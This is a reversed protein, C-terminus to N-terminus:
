EKVFKLDFVEEDTEIKVFYLGKPLNEVVIKNAHSTITKVIKGQYDMINIENIVTSGANIMLYDKAPNPFIVLDNRNSLERQGVTGSYDVNQCITEECGFASYSTLCVNYVGTTAYQHVPNQSTSTNGDGFDWLWGTITGTTITSQDSFTYQGTGNQTFTFFPSPLPEINVPYTQMFTCGHSTTILLSVMYTGPQTYTNIGITGFSLNGDGFDWSWSVITNGQGSGPYSFDQFAVQEGVCAPYFGFDVFGDNECALPVYIQFVSSGTDIGNGCSPVIKPYIDVFVKYFYGGPLSDFVTSNQWGGNTGLNLTNGVDQILYFVSDANTTVHLEIVGSDPTNTSDAKVSVSDISLTPSPPPITSFNYSISNGNADSILLSFTDQCLSNYFNTIGSISNTILPTTNASHMGTLSFLYPSVGGSVAIYLSGYSSPLPVIGISDCDLCTNVVSTSDITLQANISYSLTVILM